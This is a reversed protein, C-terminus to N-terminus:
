TNIRKLAHARKASLSRHDTPRIYYGNAKANRVSARLRKLSDAKGVVRTKGPRSNDLASGLSRAKPVKGGACPKVTCDPKPDPWYAPREVHASAAQPAVLLRLLVFVTVSVLQVLRARRTMVSLPNRM